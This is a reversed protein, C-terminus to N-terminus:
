GPFSPIPAEVQDAAPIEIPATTPIPATTAPATPISSGQLSTQCVYLDGVPPACWLTLSGCFTVEGIQLSPVDSVIEVNVDCGQASALPPPPYFFIPIAFMALLLLALCSLSLKTRM